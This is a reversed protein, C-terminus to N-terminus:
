QRQIEVASVIAAGKAPRFQLDLRGGKVDVPFSRRLAALPGAGAAAIDLRELKPAGDALVDFQREGPKASPEVFTLTVQYRGDSLPLRYRFDGERYTAAVDSDPTGSITKKEAARGYDAARNVTAARGGEFFNDSGYRGTQATAAMLAGSDIRMSAAVDPAVRWIIADRVPKGGFQGVAVLNNDGPQLRINSWVCTMQECRRRVGLSRGNLRLETASGNSYVRVDTVAYARDVYRRGNIHVTPAPTWNAKYFFFADKKVKRDYTVLGKTNIDDSDGEHRVTTAFDFSNWLWTAWLYPKSKLTAWSSEHVYNQYEEPQNRGRSDVPGGLPNDTHMTIAGGAGYEAVALPQNPRRVHLADLHPGLEGVAGYYWGFYRNAGALDAAPAVIPVAANADFLRGECCNAQTTPRSPDEARALASLERLLPLPDPPEGKGGALFQPISNGFDVENAIGWAAVSAHNGNQRILEQMQQRANALLGPSAEQQGPNVTWSSVLPIEDWLILGYKDALDHIPQGHQYHTLRITNAGMERILRVDAEIDAATTAWGKGELDQHLGVGHLRLPKGNLLFGVQPDFRMQRVGFAQALQDLRRGGGDRLEVVLRYLYPDAVGQWLRPARVTLTQEVESAGPRLDLTRREEAAIRGEASVLRAVVTVKAAAQGDNSLRSRVSVDAVGKELRATHAYVGPGGFDLMAIHVPDTAILSVPRYLGGHVFFDGSLPLVDATTSGSSVDLVRPRPPSPVAAVTWTGSTAVARM